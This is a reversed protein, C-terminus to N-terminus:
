SIQSVDLWHLKYVALLIGCIVMRKLLGILTNVYEILWSACDLLTSAWNYLRIKLDRFWDIYYVGIYYLLAILVDLTASIWRRLVILWGIARNILWFSSCIFRVSMSAIMLLLLWRLHILMDCFWLFWYYPQYKIIRVLWVLM